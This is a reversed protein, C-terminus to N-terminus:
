MNYFWANEDALTYSANWSALRELVDKQEQDLHNKSMSGLLVPLADVAFANVNDLQMAEMRGVDFKGGSALLQKIRRAREEIYTGNYYYPYNVGTPHQNASFVYGCTPDFVHPLSDEPIYKSYLHSSKTGDLIFKGQGPWKLALKGQHDISITGDKCAFTFNQVPCSFGRIAEKYDAYNKARNLKIFTLIENSPNHLEWRLAQNLHEPTPGPFGKTSVIPGQITRYVTDYLTPGDKRKIPEISYDLDRWKGDMEYKKYDSSIKLKYWDKVDDDGNTLGWAIDENFGIVISPIGPISVGYVNMGAGTLQMELWIAPLSLGLHPDNCLIPFGSTTRNGSVAWSNSGLNPNYGNPSIMTGTTLFSYDLYAPQKIRALVPNPKGGPDDMVPTIHSSFAPFYKNIKDEGLALILNTMNYDEEYGSLMNAMYKMILATKLNSWPEPKYDLIKYELPLTRDNLQSIYANVGRTYATLIENTETDKEMLRCSEKAAALIGIRRQNRDYDLFGEKIIESLRGASAYSLFDMQWLRYYAQMYGQAFYLDKLNGAYIHPVKRDDFFVQVSDTLGMGTITRRSVNTLRDNENQVFGTFPNLLKGLPPLVFMETSLAVIVIVLSALPFCFKLNVKRM